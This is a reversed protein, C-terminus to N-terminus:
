WGSIVQSIRDCGAWPILTAGAGRIRSIEAAANDIYAQASPRSEALLAAAQYELVREEWSGHGGPLVPRPLSPDLVFARLYSRSAQVSAGAKTYLKHATLSADRAAPLDGALEAVISAIEEAGAHGTVHGMEAFTTRADFILAAARESDGLRQLLVAASGSVAAHLIPSEAVEDRLALCESTAEVIATDGLGLFLSLNAYIEATGLGPRFPHVKAHASRLLAEARPYDGARAAYLGEWTDVRAIVCPEDVALALERIPELEGGSLALRNIRLHVMAPLNGSRHGAEDIRQLAEAVRGAAGLAYSELAALELTLADDPVALDRAQAAFEAGAVVESREIAQRAATMLCQAALRAATAQNTSGPELERWCRDARMAQAVALDVLGPEVRAYELLRQAIAMHVKAREGLVMNAYAVEAATQNAALGSHELEALSSSLTAEDLQCAADLDGPRLEAGWAGICALVHRSAATLRDIRAGLAAQASPPVEDEIGDEALAVLQELFLPNGHSRRVLPQLTTTASHLELDGRLSRLLESSHRASLPPIKFVVGSMGTERTGLVVIIPGPPTAQMELLDRLPDPARDYDDVIVVLPRRASLEFMQRRIRWQLEVTSPAAGVFVRHRYLAREFQQLRWLGHGADNRQCAVFVTDMSLSNTEAAIRRLIRSKGSGIPGVLAITTIAAEEAAASIATTLESFLPRQNVFVQEPGVVEADRVVSWARLPKDFGKAPVPPLRECAIDDRVLLWTRVDVVLGGEPAAAQLRAARNMVSGIAFSSDRDTMVVRGSSLGFRISLRVGHHGITEDNHAALRDLADLAGLVARLADDERAADAGFVGVVADGIFKELRGGAAVLAGGVQGFYVELIRHWVQPDFRLSLQTSGAIDCFVVTVFRMNSSASPQSLMAGCGMCFRAASPSVTGCQPCAISVV